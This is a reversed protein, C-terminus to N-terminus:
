RVSLNLIFSSQIVNQNGTNQIITAVGNTAGFANDGVVNTGTGSSTLLNSAVTASSESSNITNVMEEVQVGQRGTQQAMAGEALPAGLDAQGIESAVVPPAFAMGLMVAFTVIHKRIM